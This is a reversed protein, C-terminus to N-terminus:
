EKGNAKIYIYIYTHTHTHKILVTGALFSLLAIKRYAIKESRLIRELYEVIWNELPITFAVEFGWTM